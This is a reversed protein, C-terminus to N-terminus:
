VFDPRSPAPDNGSISEVIAFDDVAEHGVVGIASVMWAHAHLGPKGKERRVGLFVVGPLGRRNLMWRAVLVMMLCTARERTAWKIRRFAHQAESLFRLQAGTLAHVPTVGERERLQARWVRYPVFRVLFWACVLWACAEGFLM